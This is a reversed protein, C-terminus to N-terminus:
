IREGGESGTICLLKNEEAYHVTIVKKFGGKQIYIEFKNNGIKEVRYPIRLADRLEYVDWDWARMYKLAFHKTPIITITKIDWPVKM